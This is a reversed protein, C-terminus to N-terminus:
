AQLEAAEAASRKDLMTELPTIRRYQSHHKHVPTRFPSISRNNEAPGTVDFLNTRSGITTGGKTTMNIKGSGTKWNNSLGLQRDTSAYLASRMSGVIGARAQRNDPSLFSTTKLLFSEKM